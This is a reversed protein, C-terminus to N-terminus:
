AAGEDTVAVDQINREIDEAPLGTKRAWHYIVLSLVAVALIDWGLPINNRATDGFGGQWSILGMGILYAPLWQGAKWDLRSADPQGTLHTYAVYGGMLLYGLLIALGLRWLTDWGSWYIILNAVVFSAPALIGGSRLRYPRVHDPLRDRLVGYALPTGAYMLISASTIFSVLQQWSPFPLFCVVGTVFTIVLGFWPVGRSDTKEFLKPAYGNRSLGYSIRSSATTYILGTGGPSVIADFYLVWALWGLGLLTALGALPGSIGPFNLHAWGGAFTSGPLAGIFAVQLLLYITAGIAVSGITARPIDRHPNSSEGALQIAQEFGLLAFIIGSTSIAELVGKAGYPAFGHSTFNGVDFHSAALVFITLLPIAVKWWTATSNTHALLRIGFFNVAVFVAMLIVAVVLGSATLTEDSRLFGQAWKWHGAYGIMAEVEIPATTASALWTFWGFSIGALGGFAYHPYRAVGGAVPFMSGIEAHVLALLAIAVTGIGWAILAAPGAVVVANKAGYLWGSGIISGVSAWLLAVPGVSRRLSTSPSLPATDRNDVLSM